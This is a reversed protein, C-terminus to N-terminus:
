DSLHPLRELVRRKQDSSVFIVTDAAGLARAETRDLERHLRGGSALLGLTDLEHAESVNFHTVCVVRTEPADRFALCIEASLPDQAYLTVPGRRAKLQRSLKKRVRRRALARFLRYSQEKSFLGVVRTPLHWARQQWRSAFGPSVVASHIGHRQAAAAIERFHTEVGTFGNGSMLSVIVLSESHSM